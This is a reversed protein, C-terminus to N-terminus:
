RKGIRHAGSHGSNRLPAGRTRFHYAAEMHPHHVAKGHAQGTGAGIKHGDPQETNGPAPGKGALASHKLTM